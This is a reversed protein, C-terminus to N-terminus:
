RRRPQALRPRQRRALPREDAVHAVGDALHQGQPRSPRVRPRAGSFRDAQRLRLHAAVVGPQFQHALFPEGGDHQERVQAGGVAGEDVAALDQGAVARDRQAVAVHM